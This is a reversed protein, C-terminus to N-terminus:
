LELYSNSIRSSVEPDVNYSDDGCIVKYGRVDGGSQPRKWSIVATHKEVLEAGVDLVASPAM